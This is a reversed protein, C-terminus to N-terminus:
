IRMPMIVHISDDTGIVVPDLPGLLKITFTDQELSRICEYFYQLNFGAKFPSERYHTHAGLEGVEVRRRHKITSKKKSDHNGHFYLKGDLTLLYIEKFGARKYENLGQKVKLTDGTIEADCTHPTVHTHPPFNTKPLNFEVTGGEANEDKEPSLAIRIPYQNGNHSEVTLSEVEERYKWLFDMVLGHVVVSGVVEGEPMPNWVALRHGDTAVVQIKDHSPAILVGQLHRKHKDTSRCYAARKFIKTIMDIKLTEQM